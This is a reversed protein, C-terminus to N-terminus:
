EPNERNDKSISCEGGEKYGDIGARQMAGFIRYKIGKNERDLERLLQKVNERDSTKDAPCPSHLVPLDSHNIFYKIDKEPTYVLPRLLTIDMRDLYTVPSFCGIRGENFLNMIFTEVADDFHHGLAIKNCGLEKAHTHLAGRRMRACLSCPNKEKRIDFIIKAIDTEFLTFNVELQRCLEALAEFSKKTEAEDGYGAKYFGPDMTIVELDFRKPYFKKLNAMACVLALSDKGGSLGVAIRDGDEIMNYDEVARRTYSLIRRTNFTYNMYIDKQRRM